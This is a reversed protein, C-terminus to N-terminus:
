KQKPVFVKQNKVDKLMMELIEIVEKKTDGVIDIPEETWSHSNKEPMDYYVEHVAYWYGDKPNKHQHKIIRYNWTM